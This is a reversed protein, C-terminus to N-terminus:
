WIAYKNEFNNIVTQRFETQFGINLYSINPYDINPYNTNLYDLNQQM